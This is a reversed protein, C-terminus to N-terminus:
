IHILSLTHAILICPANKSDPKAHLGEYTKGNVEYNILEKNM